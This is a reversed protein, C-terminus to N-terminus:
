EASFALTNQDGLSLLTSIQIPIPFGAFTCFDTRHCMEDLSTNLLCFKISSAIVRDIQLWPCVKEGFNAAQHNSVTTPRPFHLSSALFHGDCATSSIMCVMLYPATLCSALNAAILASSFCGVFVWCAAAATLAFYVWFCHLISQM